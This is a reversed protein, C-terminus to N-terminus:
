ACTGANCVGSCCQAGTSCMARAPRCTAAQVASPSVISSVVALGVGAGVGLRRIVERRSMGGKRGVGGGEKLLGAKRLEGVAYAVEEQSVERGMREGVSRAAERLSARGDCEAWVLAAAENLCHARHGSLDYVLTEEPLRQVILGEERARPIKSEQREKM